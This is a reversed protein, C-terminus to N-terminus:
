AGCGPECCGGTAPRPSCRGAWAPRPSSPASRSPAGPSSRSTVAAVVRRQAEWLGVIDRVPYRRQAFVGLIRREHVEVQGRGAMRTLLRDPLGTGRLAGVWDRPTRGRTSAAVGALVEDLIPHGVPADGAAVLVAGDTVLRGALRLESLLAGGVGCELEAPSLRCKGRLDHALLLLEEALTESAPTQSM